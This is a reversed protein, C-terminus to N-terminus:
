EDVYVWADWPCVGAKRASKVTELIYGLTDSSDLAVANVGDEFPIYFPEYGKSAARKVQDSATSFQRYVGIIINYKRDPKSVPKGFRSVDSILVGMETLTAAAALSDQREQEKLLLAQKAAEEAAKISDRVYEARIRIQEQRERILEKKIRIDESTPRGATKRLFDCGSVAFIVIISLVPIIKKM